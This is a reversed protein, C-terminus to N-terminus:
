TWCLHVKATLARRGYSFGQESVYLDLAISGRGDKRCMGGKQLWRATGEMTHSFQHCPHAWIRPSAVINRTLGSEPSVSEEESAIESLMRRQRWKFRWACGKWPMCFIHGLFMYELSHTSPRSNSRTAYMSPNSTEEIWFNASPAFTCSIERRKASVTTNWVIHHTIWRGFSGWLAGLCCLFSQGTTPAM